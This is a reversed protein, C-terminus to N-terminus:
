NGRIRIPCLVGDTLLIYIVPNFSSLVIPMPCIIMQLITYLETGKEVGHSFYMYMGIIMYVVTGVNLLTIKISGKIKKMRAAENGPIVPSKILSTITLISAGVSILCQLNTMVEPITLSKTHIGFPGTKNWIVTQISIQMMTPREPTDSFIVSPFFVAQVLCACGIILEVATKNLNRLPFSIQYWRSIALTSTITIPAYALYWLLSGATKETITAPRQYDLYHTQCFTVNNDEVCQDEKPRLIAVSYITSIALSSAFDTASLVMYIDRAISRKKRLNHRFVLPNLLLSILATLILAVVIWIDPSTVGGESFMAM